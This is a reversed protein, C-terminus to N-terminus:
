TVSLRGLAESSFGASFFASSFFDSLLSFISHSCDNLPHAASRHSNLALHYSLDAPPQHHEQPHPVAVALGLRAEQGLLDGVQADKLVGRALHVERQQVAAALGQDDGLEREVGVRAAAATGAEGVGGQGVHGLRQHLAEGVVQAGGADGHGSAAEPGHHEYLDVVVARHGDEQVRVGPRLLLQWEAFSSSSARLLAFPRVVLLLRGEDNTM